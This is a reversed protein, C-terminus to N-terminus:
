ENKDDVREELKETNEESKRKMGIAAYAASFTEIAPVRVLYGARDGHLVLLGFTVAPDFLETEHKRNLDERFFTVRHNRSGVYFDANGIGCAESSESRVGYCAYGMIEPYARYEGLFYGATFAGILAVGGLLSRLKKMKYQVELCHSIVVSYNARSYLGKTSRLEFKKSVNIFLLKLRQFM